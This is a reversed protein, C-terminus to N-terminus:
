MQRLHLSGSDSQLTVLAQPATGVDGTIKKGDPSGQHQMANSFDNTISGSNTELDAHFSADRPLAVDVDGSDSLFTYQGDVGITGQVTVNGSQTNLESGGTLSIATARLAGSDSKVTLKGAIGTVVVDGSDTQLQLDCNAPLTIDLNARSVGSFDFFHIHDNAVRITIANGRQTATVNFDDPSAGYGDGIKTVIITMTQDTGPRVHIFGEDNTVSLSPRMGASLSFTHTERVTRIPSPNLTRVAVWIGGIILLVILALMIFLRIPHGRRSSYRLSTSDM